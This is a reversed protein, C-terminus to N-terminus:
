CLAQSFKQLRGQARIASESFSRYSKFMEHSFSRIRTMLGHRCALRASELVGNGASGRQMYPHDLELTRTNTSPLVLRPSPQLLSLQEVSM